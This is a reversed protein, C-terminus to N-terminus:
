VRNLSRVSDREVIETVFEYNGDFNRNKMIALLNEAARAGLRDRICM